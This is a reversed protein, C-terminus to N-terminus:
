VFVNRGGRFITPPATIAMGAQQVPDAVAMSGDWVATMAPAAMAALVQAFRHFRDGTLRAPWGSSRRAATMM